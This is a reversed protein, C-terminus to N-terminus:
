KGSGNDCMEESGGLKDFRQLMGSRLIGRLQWHCLMMSFLSM